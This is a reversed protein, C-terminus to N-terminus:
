KVTLTFMFAHTASGATGTMRVTYTGSPTSPAGTCGAMAIVSLLAFGCVARRVGCGTFRWMGLLAIAVIGFMAIFAPTAPIRPRSSPAAAFVGSSTAITVTTSTSGNVPPTLPNQTFTCSSDGPLSACNLMVASAFGDVSNLTVTATITGHTGISAGTPSATITFDPGTAVGTGSLAVTQPSTSDSDTVSLTASEASTTTPTFKISITCTGSAALSTGCTTSGAFDSANTGAIAVSTISLTTSKGNSLTAMQAPSTSNLNVNGFAVTSPSLTVSGGGGSSGTGAGALSSTQPSSPDSDSVSLTANETSTTTPTFIIIITCTSGAPVTGGVAPCTSSTQIGFDAGNAGTVTIGPATITITSASNNVLTFTQAASPTGVAFSGFNLSVPSLTTGAAPTTGTGTLSVQQPAGAGNDAINLRASEQVANSPTFTVNITCSGGAQLTGGVAPCTSGAQVAFDAANAGTVTIGPATITIASATNNALTVVQSPSTTGKTQNGFPLSSPTAFVGQAAAPSLEAVFGDRFGQLKTQFSGATTPFKTSITTGVIFVDPPSATDLALGLPLVSQGSPSATGQGYYTSFGVASGDAALVAVYGQQLGAVGNTYPAGATSPYNGQPIEQSWTEGTLYVNGASDVAMAHPQDGSIAGGLYTAWVLSTSSTATPATNFKAVFGTSDNQSNAPFNQEFAGVTTPFTTDYTSGGIYANASSDVAICNGAEPQSASSSSGLFSSYILSSQASQTTDIRAVFADQPGNLTSQVANNNLSMPFDSSTAYGTIYANFNADVAIASAGDNSTGGMYTSYVLGSLGPKTPDIRSLFVNNGGPGGAGAANNNTQLAFQPTIPFNTSSTAGAIYANGNADVAIGTPSDQFGNGGLYTSYILSAGNPDLKSFFGAGSGGTATPPAVSEIPSATLPFDSSTTGGTVYADGSSDLAIAVASNGTTGGLYTSYVLSTGTPNLKTVFAYGKGNNNQTQLAGTTTPFNTTDTSGVVYANGSGDIAVANAFTTALGTPVNAGGLYTSYVVVPDIVLPKTADYTGINIGISDPSALAFNAAVEHRAGNIQQYADPRKLTLDGAATTIALDGQPGLQIGDGGKVHLRISDPRSGPAVVFDTELQSQNGYYVADVGPYVDRYQVRSYLPVNRQWRSPDNGILYNSKGPQLEVGEVEPNPNSAELSLRVVADKGTNPRAGRPQASHTGAANASLSLVAENKTLFLSYGQGHALFKVRPDSQGENKEFAIPLRGYAALLDPTAHSQSARSIRRRSARHGEQIALCGIICLAFLVIAMRYQRGSPIKLDPRKM